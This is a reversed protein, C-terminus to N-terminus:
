HRRARRALGLAASGGGLLLLTAPEPVFDITLTVFAPLFEFGQSIFVPTV